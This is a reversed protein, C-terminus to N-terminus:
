GEYFEGILGAANAYADAEFDGLVYDGQKTPRGLKTPIVSFLRLDKADSRYPVTLFLELVPGFGQLQNSLQVTMGAATDKWEYSILVAASADASAFTYIGTAENVSYQGQTPSSAVRVFALGSASYIVGWDNTFNAANTTTYTWPTSAPVTAAEALVMRERGTTANEAIISSLQSAGLLGYKAKITVKGDKVAQDVPFIQRGRLAAVQWSFEVDANQLVGLQAPTPNTAENGQSTPRILLAGSGFSYLAVSM